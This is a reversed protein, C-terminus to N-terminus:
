EWIIDDETGFTQDPGASTVSILRMKDFPHHHVAYQTGWPDLLTGDEQADLDLYVTPSRPDNGTLLRIADESSLPNPPIQLPGWLYRRTPSLAIEKVAAGIARVESAAKRKKQGSETWIPATFIVLLLGCCLIVLVWKITKKM